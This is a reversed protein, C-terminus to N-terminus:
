NRFDRLGDIVRGVEDDSLRPHLPLNLAEHMLRETVPLAAPCDFVSSLHLPHFRLTSYIGRALLHHALADRANDGGLVRICYTFYSHRDGAEADRPRVIWPLDALEQQYRQWIEARRRQLSALKRLQALGIAANLDTPLM